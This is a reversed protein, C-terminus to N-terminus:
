ASEGHAVRRAIIDAVGRQTETSVGVRRPAVGRVTRDGQFLRVRPFRVPDVGVTVSDERVASRQGAGLGEWAARWDGTDDMTRPSGGRRFIVRQSPLWPIVRDGDHEAEANFQETVGQRIRAVVQQGVPRVPDRLREGFTREIGALSIRISLAM